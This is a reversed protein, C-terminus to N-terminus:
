AARGAAAAANRFFDLGQGPSMPDLERGRRRARERTLTWVPHQSLRYFAEPHPMLGFVRGSPDCIGAIDNVAGNPNAPRKGGARRGRGDGYRLAALGMDEIRALTAEDATFKGEGHRIPLELREMGRTFVCPSDPEVLIEVWRDQFNGCDNAALAASREWRGDLLPLLGLNVLAQFGNCIGLVLGGRALFDQLQERLHNGLRTALLVGAGHDDGWAFGGGFVLIQYKDLTESPPAGAPGDLDTNRVRKAQAGALRLGHAAEWDCNIGYGALVQARPGGGTPSNENTAAENM